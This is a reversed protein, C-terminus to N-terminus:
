TICKVQCMPGNKAQLLIQLLKNQAERYLGIDVMNVWNPSRKHGWPCLKLLSQLPRNYARLVYWPEVGTTEFLINTKQSCHCGSNQMSNMHNLVQSLPSDLSCERFTQHFEVRDNLLLHQKFCTTSQSAFSPCRVKVSLPCWITVFAWMSKM